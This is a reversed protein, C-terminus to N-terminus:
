GFLIVFDSVVFPLESLHPYSQKAPLHICLSFSALWTSVSSYISYVHSCKQFKQQIRIKWCNSPTCPLFTQAFRSPSTRTLLCAQGIRHYNLPSTALWFHASPYSHTLRFTSYGMAPQHACRGSLHSSCRVGSWASQLGSESYSTLWLHWWCESLM